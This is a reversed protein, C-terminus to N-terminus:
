HITTANIYLMYVAVLLLVGAFLRALVGKQKALVVSLRTGLLGGLAGGLLYEAAISYNVYGSLTYTIATTTGFLGVSFLSTGIANVLPMGTAFILGPVILFGGGIGFFGSLLGVVVSIPLIRIIQERQTFERESSSVNRPRIMVVAVGIMVFAFLFLLSRGPFLTGLRAGIAAGLAGPLAFLLASKLRVTHAKWHPIINLYATMAVSLATTGLVVHTDRYGVLYLLLPVALISGGGGFLGLTFDVIVGSFIVLSHQLLSLTEM